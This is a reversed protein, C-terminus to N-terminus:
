CNRMRIKGKGGELKKREERKLSKRRVLKMSSTTRSISHDSRRNLDSTSSMGGLGSIAGRPKSSCPFSLASSHPLPPLISLYTFTHLLPSLHPLLLLPPTFPHLFSSLLASSQCTRQMGTYASLLSTSHSIRVKRL